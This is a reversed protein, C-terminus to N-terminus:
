LGALSGYRAKAQELAVVYGQREYQEADIDVPLALMGRFEDVSAFDKHVMWSRLGDLLAEAHNVGNRVLSSTTMVVDAGALLYKVVDESGEVGSSGALSARVRGRLSAIWTRPLRGDLPSSLSVGPEMQMTEIHIDPQFFRNFMVLGDAGHQDLKVAMDGFSSFYPALKVAVPISVADKVGVLIELHRNEVEESPIRSDGPVYYINLELAAAGAEQMRKAFSIWGGMSAGNLSGIVPVEVAKAARELLKLYGASVPDSGPAKIPVAPFYSLAEAYSDTQQEEVEIQRAQEARIQEELLSYMVIAGVGADALAKVGDVSQQLPGASAVLPNRLPLGLYTTELRM